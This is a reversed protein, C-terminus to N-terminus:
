RKPVGNLDLYKVLEKFTGCRVEPRGCVERAFNKMVEWYVGDNWKQSFHYGILVPARSSHYNHNFYDRFSALTDGYVAQWEPSDKKLISKAETDHVYINYDMAITRVHRPGLSITGLPIHWMGQADKTPWGNNSSVESSDYRAHLDHLAEYLGPSKDLYPARFGIVDAPTLNLKPLHADPYIANLGFFIKSFTGLEEEWQAMTWSSGSFHGTTHSAIEDGDAVATNVEIIRQRIDEVGDAIGINTKGVEQNPGTYLHRTDGTLFYAANIFYTMHLPKGAARMEDKFAALDKWTEISKSGDFSILVFQPIFPAASPPQVVKKPAPMFTIHVKELASALGILIICLVLFNFIKFDNTSM